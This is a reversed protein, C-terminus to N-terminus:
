AFHEYGKPEMKRIGGKKGVLELRGIDPTIEGIVSLPVNRYKWTKILRHADKDSVTFLLEFDEGDTFAAQIGAADKSVPIKDEYLRAGAKSMKIMRFLDILLGDSVDMMSHLHTNSNLWLAEKIRPVFTFEKRKRSGGLTGTVFILDGPVAGSRKVIKKEDAEGIITVSIVIGKKSVITDGGVIDTGFFVALKEIGDILGNVFNVPTNEPLGLSIVAARPVAAMAAIDSLAAGMAKWGIRYPSVENKLFHVGEAFMDATVVLAKDNKMKVVAADDGIGILTDKNKKYKRKFIEILANEGIDSIYKMYLNLNRPGNRRDATTIYGDSM